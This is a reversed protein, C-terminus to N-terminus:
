EDGMSLLPCPQRPTTGERSGECPLTQFSGSTIEHRGGPLALARRTKLFIPTDTQLRFFQTPRHRDLVVLEWRHGIAARRFPMEGMRRPKEFREEKRRIVRCVTRKMRAVVVKEIRVVLGHAVTPRPRRSPEKRPRGDFFDERIASGNVPAHVLPE